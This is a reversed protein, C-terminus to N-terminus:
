ISSALRAAAKSAMRSMSAGGKVSVHMFGCRIRTPIDADEKVMHHIQSYANPGCCSDDDPVVDFCRRLLAECCNKPGDDLPPASALHLALDDPPRSSQSVRDRDIHQGQVDHNM